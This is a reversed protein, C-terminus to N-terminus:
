GCLMRRARWVARFGGTVVDASGFRLTVTGELASDARPRGLRIEGAAAPECGAATCRSGAAMEPEAPWAYTRGGLAAERPYIALRLQPRAQDPLSSPSTTLLISVARGDWPACDPSAYAYAFDGPPGPLPALDSGAKCGALALAVAVGALRAPRFRLTM